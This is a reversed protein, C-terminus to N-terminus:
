GLSRLFSRLLVQFATEFEDYGARLLSSACDIQRLSVPLQPEVRLFRVVAASLEFTLPLVSPDSRDLSARHTGLLDLLRRADADIQELAWLQDVLAADNDSELEGTILLVGEYQAPAAINAPRMWIDPRLEGMRAGLMASRFSRREAVSRSDASAIATHWRGDWEGLADSRGADQQKQRQLLRQGLGYGNEASLLEGSAAMRSLATRVTGPRIDFLEALGTLQPGSLVPPHTGLLVSLVVSRVSLPELGFSNNRNKNM